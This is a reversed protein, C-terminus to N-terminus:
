VPEIRFIFKWSLKLEIKRDLVLYDLIKSDQRKFTLIRKKKKDLLLRCCALLLGCSSSPCCCSLWLVIWWLGFGAAESVCVSGVWLVCM